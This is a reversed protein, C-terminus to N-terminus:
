VTEKDAAQGRVSVASYQSWPHRCHLLPPGLLGTHDKASSEHGEPLMGLVGRTLATKQVRRLGASQTIEAWGNSIPTGSCSWTLM